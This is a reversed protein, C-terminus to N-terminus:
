SYRYRLMRRPLYYTSQGAVYNILNASGSSVGLCYDIKINNDLLYYFIGCTYIGRLGGSIDIIGIM